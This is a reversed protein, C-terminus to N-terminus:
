LLYVKSFVSPPLWSHFILLCQLMSVCSVPCLCLFCLLVVSFVLFILLVSRVFFLPSGLHEGLILLEQRKNSVRWKEWIRWPTYCLIDPMGNRCIRNYQDRFSSYRSMRYDVSLSDFMLNCQTWRATIMLLDLLGQHCHDYWIHSTRM